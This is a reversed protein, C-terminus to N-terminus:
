ADIFCEKGYCVFHCRGARCDYGELDSVVCFETKCGSFVVHVKEKLAGRRNWSSRVPRLWSELENSPTRRRNKCRGNVCPAAGLQCANDECEVLRREALTLWAFFLLLGVFQGKM